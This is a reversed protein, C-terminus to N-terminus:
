KNNEAYKTPCLGFTRKFDRSFHGIDNYGVYMAIDAVTRKSHPINLVMRQATKMRLEHLYEGPTKNMEKVFLRRMHDSCYGQSSLCEELSFYPNKFNHIIQNVINEVASSLPNKKMASIILQKIAESLSERVAKDHPSTYQVSHLVQCTKLINRDADDSLITVKDCRLQEFEPIWIWIDSFVTDPIKSHSIGVPVCIVTREDFRVTENELEIEGEGSINCIIEWCAHSHKPDHKKDITIGIYPIDIMIMVEPCFSYLVSVSLICYSKLFFIPLIHIDFYYIDSFNLYLDYFHM